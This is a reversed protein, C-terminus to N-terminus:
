NVVEILIFLLKGIQLNQHFPDKLLIAVHKTDNDYYIGVEIPLVLHINNVVYIVYDMYDIHFVVLDVEYM